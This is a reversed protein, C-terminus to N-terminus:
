ANAEATSATLKHLDTRAGRPLVIVPCAASRVLAHSVGGRLVVDYDIPAVDARGDKRVGRQLHEQDGIGPLPGPPAESLSQAPPRDVGLDRLLGLLEHLAVRSVRRLGSLGGIGHEEVRRVEGLFLLHLADDRQRLGYGV